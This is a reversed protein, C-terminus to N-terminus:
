WDIGCLYGDNPQLAQNWTATSITSSITRVSGDGLAVSISRSALSQAMLPWVRCDGDRPALQFTAGPDSRHAPREAANEGFFAAFPSTPDADYRSGGEILTGALSAQGCTALKTSFCITNSTGDRFTRPIVAKGPMIPALPVPIYKEGYSTLGADSFVRLNAVFSQVGHGSRLTADSPAQFGAVSADSKGQEVFTEYLADQGIFRLLHVHLSKPQTVRAFSDCAPPLCKHVDNCAHLALALKQMREATEQSTAQARLHCVAPILLGLGIATSMLVVLMGVNRSSM